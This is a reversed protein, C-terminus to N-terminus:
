RLESGSYKTLSVNLAHYSATGVNWWQNNNSMYPNPRQTLTIGGAVPTIPPKSPMYHLAAYTTIMIM